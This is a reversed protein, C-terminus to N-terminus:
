RRGSRLLEALILNVATMTRPFRYTLWTWGRVIGIIAAIILIPWKAYYLAIATVILFAFCHWPKV